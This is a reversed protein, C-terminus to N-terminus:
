DNKKLYNLMANYGIKFSKKLKRPNRFDLVSLNGVDISFVNADKSYKDRTSVAILSTFFKDLGNIDMPTNYESSNYRIGLVNKSLTMVHNIPFADTLAGDVYLEDEHRVASFFIPLSCSMRIATRVEMDPHTEPSFYVASSTSLNTACVVLTIGTNDYISKFTHKEEDGLVIDIWRFLNEGSDIGFASGFNKIDLDPRYTTKTFKKVMDIPDRGLAIGAAVIAGASTGAVIKLKNLQGAKKLVHIAGLASMSKAGGGALVLSEPHNIKVHSMQTLM